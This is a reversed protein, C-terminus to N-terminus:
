QSYPTSRPPQTYERGLVLRFSVRNRFPPAWDRGLQGDTSEGPRLAWTFFVMVPRRRLDTVMPIQGHEYNHVHSHIKVPPVSSPSLIKCLLKKAQHQQVKDLSNLKNQHICYYASSPFQSSTHLMLPSM